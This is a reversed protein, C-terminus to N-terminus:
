TEQLPSYDEPDAFGATWAVAQRCTQMEPPVRLVYRRGTSPCQVAVCVLVEDGELPLRLLERRGGAHTDADIVEASEARRLREFGYREFMVRRREANRERLVEEPTLQEPHFAVREDIKVGRWLLTTGRLSAPLGTLGSGAADLWDAV